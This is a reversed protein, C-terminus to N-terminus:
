SSHLQSNYDQYYVSDGLWPHPLLLLYYTITITISPNEQLLLLNFIKFLITITITIFQLTITIFQLTITYYYIVKSNCHDNKETSVPEPL